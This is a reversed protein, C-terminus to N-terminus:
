RRCSRRAREARSGIPRHKPGHSAARARTFRRGSKWTEEFPGYTPARGWARRRNSRAQLILREVRPAAGWGVGEDGEDGKMEEEDGGGREM